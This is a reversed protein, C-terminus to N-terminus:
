IERIQKLFTWSSILFSAYALVLNRTFSAKSIFCTSCRKWLPRGIKGYWVFESTPQPNITKWNYIVPIKLCEKGAKTTHVSKVPNRIIDKATDLLVLPSLSAVGWSGNRICRKHHEHEVGLVIRMFDSTFNKLVWYPKM